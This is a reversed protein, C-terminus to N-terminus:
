ARTSAHDLAPFRLFRQATGGLIAEREQPDLWPLLEDVLKLTAGYGPLQAIWPFDSAWVLRDAGFNQYLTKHWAALDRYPYEEQTFAYQGSLKVVLNKHAVLDPLHDHIPPPFSTKIRPRGTQDYYFSSAGRTVGLHNVLIRVNPFERLFQPILPLDILRPYFWIVLDRETAYAWVPYLPHQRLPKNAWEEGGLELLRFGMVGADALAAMQAVPDPLNLPLVAVGQFRTPHRRLCDLLYAHQEITTGGIQTLVAQDIGHETMVSLFKEVGEDRDPALVDDIERPFQPSVPAFVHLHADIRVM